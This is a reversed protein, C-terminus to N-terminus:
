GFNSISFSFFFSVMVSEGDELCKIAESQFPDLAFPFVKAPELGQPVSSPRSSPVFNEPYSVDHLCAVPEEDLREVLGSERLQKQPTEGPPNEDPKRKISGMLFRVFFVLFFGLFFFFGHFM